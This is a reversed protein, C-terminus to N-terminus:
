RGADAAAQMPACVKAAAMSSTMRDVCAYGTRCDTNATCSDYCRTAGFAGLCVGGTCVSDDQCNNLTCYGGPAPAMAFLSGLMTACSGSGCEG